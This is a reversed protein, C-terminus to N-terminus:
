VTEVGTRMVAKALDFPERKMRQLAKRRAAAPNRAAVPIVTEIVATRRVLLNFNKTAVVPRSKAAAAPKEARRKPSRSRIPDRVPADEVLDYQIGVVKATRDGPLPKPFVFYTAHPQRHFGIEGFDRTKAAPEQVITLVRNEKVAKLFGPERKPDNWLTVQRPRGARNVLERFRITSM